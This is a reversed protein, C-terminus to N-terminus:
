SGDVVLCGRGAAKARYLARDSRSLLADVDQEGPLSTALGISVSIDIALGASTIIPRCLERLLRQGAIQAEVGGMGILLVAFEEGGIRALVDAGRLLAHCRQAIARLVEDGIPHGFRDNISKFHDIDISLLSCVPGGALAKELAGGIEQLLRRRNWVGTLPDSVALQRLHEESQRQATVDWWTLLFFDGVFRYRFQVIRRVDDRCQVAWESFQIVSRDQRAAKTKSLWEAFVAAREVPDPFGLEWWEDHHVIAKEEYLFMEDSVQNYFLSNFDLDYIELAVPLKDLIETAQDNPLRGPGERLTILRHMDTLHRLGCHLRRSAGDQAIIDIEFQAQLTEPEAMWAREMVSCDPMQGIEALLPGPECNLLPQDMLATAAANAAVVRVQPGEVVLLPRDTRHIWDFM